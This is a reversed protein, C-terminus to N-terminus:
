ARCRGCRCRPAHAPAPCGASAPRSPLRTWVPRHPMLSSLLPLLSVATFPWASADDLRWYRLIRSPRTTLTLICFVTPTETSSRTLCPRSPLPSRRVLLSFACSSCFWHPTPSRTLIWSVRGSDAVLRQRTTSTRSFAFYGLFGRPFGAHNRPVLLCGPSAPCPLEAPVDPRDVYSVSTIWCSDRSLTASLVPAFSIRQM